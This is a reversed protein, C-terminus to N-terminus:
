NSNRKISESKRKYKTETKCFMETKMETESLSIIYIETEIETETLSYLVAHFWSPPTSYHICTSKEMFMNNYLRTTLITSVLKAYLVNNPVHHSYLTFTKASVNLPLPFTAVRTALAFPVLASVTWLM